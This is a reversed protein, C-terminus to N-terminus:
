MPSSTATSGTSISPSFLFPILWSLARAWPRPDPLRMSTMDHSPPQMQPGPTTLLGLRVARASSVSRSSAVGAWRWASSAIQSNRGAFCSTGPWPHTHSYGPRRTAAELRLRPSPHCQPHGGVSRSGNESDAEIGVSHKDHRADDLCRAASTVVGQERGSEETGLQRRWGELGFSM